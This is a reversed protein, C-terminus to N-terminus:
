PQDELPALPQITGPSPSPRRPTSVPPAPLPRTHHTRPSNPTDSSFVHRQDFQGGLSSLSGVPSTTQDSGISRKSVSDDPTPTRRIKRESKARQDLTPPSLKERPVVMPPDQQKSKQTARQRLLHLETHKKEWPEDYDGPQLSTMASTNRRDVSGREMTGSPSILHQPPALHSSVDLSETLPHARPPKPPRPNANTPTEYHHNLAASADPRPANNQPPPLPQRMAHAEPERTDQNPVLAQQLAQQEREQVIQNWPTSYESTDMVMQGNSRSRTHGKKLSQVQSQIADQVQQRKMAGVTLRQPAVRVNPVDSYTDSGIRGDDNGNTEPSTTPTHKQAVEAAAPSGKLFDSPRGYDVNELEESRPRPPASAKAGNHQTASMSTASFTRSPQSHQEPTSDEPTQKPSLIKRLVSM